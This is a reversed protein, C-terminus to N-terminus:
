GVVQVTSFGNGQKTVQVQTAIREKLAKVHSIIGITKGSAQLNELTAIALDLTNEDLTGFGEDIFLSQIQTDRGALESLGLALALSVLFSEGGSLTNMSRRNDAQYTDVIDLELTDGERKQILYRGHLQQLHINALHTLKQLTLGQAFMRFKKGDAQGIIDNLAAWRQYGKRQKELQAGLGAAKAQQAQHRRQQETLAGVQQQVASLAEAAEELATELEDAPRDTLARAKEQELDATTEKLRQQVQQQQQRLTEAEMELAQAEPEPLLASQAAAADEFGASRAAKALDEEFGKLKAALGIQQEQKDKLSSQTTLVAQEAKVAADQAEDRQAEAQEQQEQLAQGVKVPDKDGFLAEREQQLQALASQTEKVAAEQEQAVAQREQMQQNLQELQAELVATQKALAEAEEKQASWAERREELTQFMAKATNLEFAFGHPELLQNIRATGEEFQRAKEAQEQQLRNVEAELLRQDAAADHYRREAKELDAKIADLSKLVQGLTKRDVQRQELEAQVANLEGSLSSAKVWQSEKPQLAAIQEEHAVLQEYQEQLKGALDKKEDGQLQEIRMEIQQQETLLQRQQQQAKELQTEARKLDERAEDVFPRVEKERFPHHTSLCLPCPEGEELNARDKEYNAIAQQQEFIRSRYQRTQQLQDIQDLTGLVETNLIRDRSQLEELETELRSYTALLKEYDRSLTQLKELRTQRQTLGTIEEHLRDLLSSTDTTFSKPALQELQSLIKDRKQKLDDVQQQLKSLSAAGKKQKQQQQELKESIAKQEKFSGALQKRQERIGPLDEALKSWSAHTELWQGVSESKERATQLATATKQQQQTTKQLDERAQALSQQQKELTPRQGNITLDLAKVKELVPAQKQQEARASQLADAAATSNNKAAELQQQLAPLAQEEKAIGENLAQLQGTADQLRQIPLQLPLAKRHLALREAKPQFTTSQEELNAAEQQLRQEKQRLKELQVVWNLQERLQQEEARRSKVTNELEKLQQDLAAAEEESLLDLMELEQELADLRQKELKHREFAAKSLDSYIATGTIRELLESRDREDAKLFAAFDGQSLLVSRCFRDYDLGTIEAVMETVERKKEGIIEFAQKEANWRSLERRSAQLAGEAKEHARWISWKSRYREPGVEFEVEALSKGTGYSMIEGEDAKRPVQGYLALTLADLITSKGAGTDGTIAFLGSESLPSQDFRLEQETRLSNLNLFRITNIRM